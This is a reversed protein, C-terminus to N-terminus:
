PNPHLCVLGILGLALDALTSKGAGSPGVVALLSGEPVSVSVDELAFDRQGPYTFSVHTLELRSDFAEYEGSAETPATWTMDLRQGGSAREEDAALALTPEAAGRSTRLGLAAGQLRLISPMVRTAATLFVALVAMAAVPSRFALQSATLGIGGLVLGVEFAYKPM